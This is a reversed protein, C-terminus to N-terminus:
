PSRNIIVKSKSVTVQADGIVKSKSVITQAHGQSETVRTVYMIQSWSIEIPPFVASRLGQGVVRVRNTKREKLSIVRDM